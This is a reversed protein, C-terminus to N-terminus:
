AIYYGQVFLLTNFVLWLISIAFWAIAFTRKKEFFMGMWIFLPFCPLIYRLMSSFTGTTIPIFFAFLSFLAYSYKTKRFSWLLFLLGLTGAIFEQIYTTYKLDFPRATILIKTARYFVQPYLVITSQRGGGFASEVHDFYLADHFQFQLFGIYILLGLSGVIGIMLIRKWQTQIFLLIEQTIISLSFTLKKGKLSSEFLEILLLPVLFIGIVRTASAISACISALLWKKQQALILTAVLLLMFLSETYISGFFLSTPFLLYSLTAYLATKESKERRVFLYFLILFGLFSGNSILQAWLFDGLPTPTLFHLTHLFILPYVPFFAQIYNRALYGERAISLYHVGDFNGFSYIFRPLNTTVLFVDAYPFTPKYPLFRDANAAVGFLVIRWVFFAAIILRVHPRVFSTKKKNM